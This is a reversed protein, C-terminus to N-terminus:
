RKKPGTKYHGKRMAFDTDYRWTKASLNGPNAPSENRKTENQEPAIQLLKQFAREAEAYAQLSVSHNNISSAAILSVKGLLQLADPHSPNEKLISRCYKAATGLDGSGPSSGAPRKRTGHCCVTVAM